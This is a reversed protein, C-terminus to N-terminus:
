TGKRAAVCAQWTHKKGNDLMTGCRHCYIRVVDESKALHRRWERDLRQARTLRPM